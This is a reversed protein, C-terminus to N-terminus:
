KRPVDKGQSIKAASLDKSVDVQTIAIRRVLPPALSDSFSTLLTRYIQEALRHQRTPQKHSSFNSSM